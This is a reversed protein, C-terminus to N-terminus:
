KPEPAPDLMVTLPAPESVTVAGAWATPVTWTETVVGEPELGVPGASRNVEKAAGVTVATLGFVPGLEPPVETVTVPVFRPPALVTVNPEPAPVLMATFPPPDESVTVAGAPATPLVSTVTVVGPPVLAM